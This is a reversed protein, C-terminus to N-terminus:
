LIHTLANEDDVDLKNRKRYSLFLCVCACKNM